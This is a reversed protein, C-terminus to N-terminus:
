EPAKTQWQAQRLCEFLQVYLKKVDNGEKVCHLYAHSRCHHGDLVANSGKQNVGAKSQDGAPLKLM